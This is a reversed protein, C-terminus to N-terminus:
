ELEAVLAPAETVVVEQVARNALKREGPLCFVPCGGTIGAATRVGVVGTGAQYFLLNRVVEGFGPLVKEFLPHVAEIVVDSQTAGTGGVSVVAEVNPRAVLSDIAQQVEDYGGQLERTATVTHGATTLSDTLRETVPNPEGDPTTADGVTVLAVDVPRVEGRATDATATGREIHDSAIPGTDAPEDTVAPETNPASQQEATSPPAERDQTEDAAQGTPAENGQEAPPTQDAGQDTPATGSAEQEPSQSKEASQTQESGGDEATDREDDQDDDSEDSVGRRTDRSQFDVM